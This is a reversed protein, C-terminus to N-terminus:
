SLFPTSSPIPQITYSKDRAIFDNCRCPMEHPIDEWNEAVHIKILSTHTTQILFPFTNTSHSPIIRRRSANFVSGTLDWLSIM